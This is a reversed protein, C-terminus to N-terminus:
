AAKSGPRPERFVRHPKWAASMHEGDFADVAAQLNIWFATTTNFVKAMRAAIDPEIRVRGNVIGCMHKRSIDLAAALATITVGRPELYHRKLIHGPPSPRRRTPRM